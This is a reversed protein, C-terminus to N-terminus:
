VSVIRAESESATDKNFASFAALTCAEATSFIDVAKEKQDM